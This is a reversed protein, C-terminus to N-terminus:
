KPADRYIKGRKRVPDLISLDDAEFHYGEPFPARVDMGLSRMVRADRYYCQTTLTQIIVAERPHISRFREAADAAQSLEASFSALTSALDDALHAGSRFIDALIAPDDAGPLGYKLSAPVIMRVINALAERQSKSFGPLSNDEGSM